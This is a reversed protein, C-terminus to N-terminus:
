RTKLPPASDATPSFVKVPPALQPPPSAKSITLQLGRQDGTGPAAKCLMSSDSLWAVYQACLAYMHMHTCTCRCIRMNKHRHKYHKLHPPTSCDMVQCASYGSTGPGYEALFAVRESRPLQCCARSAATPPDCGDPPCIPAPDFSCMTANCQFPGFNAGQVTLATGGLSSAETPQVQTHKHTHAAIPPRDLQHSQPPAPPSRTLLFRAAHGTLRAFHSPSLGLPPFPMPHCWPSSLFTTPFSAM